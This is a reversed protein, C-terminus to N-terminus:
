KNDPHSANNLNNENKVILKKIFRMIMRISGRNIIISYIVVIVIIIINIVMKNLYYCIFITPILVLGSILFLKNINITIYKKVDYLRYISLLLYSFLTSISAAYLGIFKILGLNIIINIIASWISTKAIAKTDKKALYIAGILGAVVNFLSALMLIPIQNYAENFKNNIMIPFVFPMFVIIIFCIATFIRLTKNMINSFFKDCDEDYIHLSASETWTMNFINYITVYVSSFKYAASLIGNSGVGLVSSVIIRDSSNFIWWSIANPILPISYKWLKDLLNKSFAKFDIYLYIKKVLFLFCCCVINGILSATLMGYAGWRFIVIFVVNLLVTTVATIFSGLAYNKNDGLGRSIQLMINSYICVIVNTLLFYKYENNIFPAIFLFLCVYLISQCTIASMSTTIIKRIERQNNRNDILYRFLGQEIQFTVIPLCLSVLSNLLDVTGYEKTTLVATYVPLLLFTILQTCIKGITIIVTNKILSTERSM